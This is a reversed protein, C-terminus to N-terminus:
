TGYEDRRDGPAWPDPAAHRGLEAPEPEIEGAASLVGLTEWRRGTHGIVYLRSRDLGTLRVGRPRRPREQGSM